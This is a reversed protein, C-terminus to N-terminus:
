MLWLDGFKRLVEATDSQMGKMQREADKKILLVALRSGGADAHTTTEEITKRAQEIALGISLDDADIRREGAVGVDCQQGVGIYRLQIRVRRSVRHAGDTHCAFAPLLMVRGIDHDDGAASERGSQQ